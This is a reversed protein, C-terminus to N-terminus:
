AALLQSGRPPSAFLKAASQSPGGGEGITSEWREYAARSIIFRHGHRINPIQHDKLMEYIAKTCIGLREAIEPVTITTRQAIRDMSTVEPAADSVAREEPGNRERGEYSTM